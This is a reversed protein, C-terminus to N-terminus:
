HYCVLMNLYLINIRSKRKLKGDQIFFIHYSVNSYSSM